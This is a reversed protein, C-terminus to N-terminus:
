HHHETEESAPIEELSDLMADTLTGVVFQRRPTIISENNEAHVELYYLGDQKFSVTRRYIGKGIEIAEEMSAIITANKDTIEFHVLDASEVVQDNQTLLVEMIVEDGVSITTPLHFEIELPEEKLYLNEADSRVSCASIMLISILM